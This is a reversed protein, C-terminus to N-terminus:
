CTRAEASVKPLEIGKELREDLLRVLLRVEHQCAAAHILKGYVTSSPRFGKAEMEEKWELAEDLHTKALLGVMTGYTQEVKPM